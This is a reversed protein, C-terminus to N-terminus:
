STVALSAAARIVFSRLAEADTTEGRKFSVDADYLGRQWRLARALGVARAQRELREFKWPDLGLRAAGGRGEGLVSAVRVIDRLQSAIGGILLAPANGRSLLGDLREPAIMPRLCMDEVLNWVLSGDSATLYTDVMERSITGGEGAIAVLKDIETSLLEPGLALAALIGQRAPGDLRVPLGELRREAWERVERPKMKPFSRLTGGVEKVYAVVPHSQPLVKTVSLCLHVEDARAWLLRVFGDVDPSKKTRKAGENLCTPDRLLVGREEAFLSGETLAARVPELTSPYDIIEIPLSADSAATRWKGVEDRVLQREEGMVLVVAPLTVESM